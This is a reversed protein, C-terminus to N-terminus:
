VTIMIMILSFKDHKYDVTCIIFIRKLFHLFFIALSSINYWDILAVLIHNKRFYFPGAFYLYLDLFKCVIPFVTRICFNLFFSVTM